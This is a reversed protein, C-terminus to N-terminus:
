AEHSEAGSTPKMMQGLKLNRGQNFRCNLTVTSFRLMNTLSITCESEGHDHMLIEVEKFLFVRDINIFFYLFKACVDLRLWM